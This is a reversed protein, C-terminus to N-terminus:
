DLWEARGARFNSKIMQIMSGIRRKSDAERREDKKFETIATIFNDFDITEKCKKSNNLHAKIRKFLKLCSICVTGLHSTEVATEVGFNHFTFCQLNGVMNEPLENKSQTDRNIPNPLLGLDQSPFDLFDSATQDQMEEESQSAKQVQEENSIMLKGMELEAKMVKRIGIMSKTDFDFNKKLVLYKVFTALFVGCDWSNNQAPIEPPVKVRLTLPKVQKNKSAFLPKIYMKELQSLSRIHTKKNKELLKKKEEPSSQPYNFPDIAVLETGTFLILFWHNDKHVPIYLERFDLLEYKRYYDKVRRFGGERFATHFFSTFIFVEADLAGILKFYENIIEDSLWNNSDLCSLVQKGSEQEQHIEKKILKSDEKHKEKLEESILDKPLHSPSQCLNILDELKYFDQCTFSRMLHNSLNKYQKKCGMCKNSAKTSKANEKNNSITELKSNDEKKMVDKNLQNGIDVKEKESVFIRKDLAERSVVKESRSRKVDENWIKHEKKNDPEEIIKAYKRGTHIDLQIHLGPPVPQDEFVEEWYNTAVFPTPTSYKRYVYIYNNGTIEDRLNTKTISTDDAKMWNTGMKILAQYHGNNIFPGLHNGISVLKFKDKNPLVLINEPTVKSEIKPGQFDDFRLLQIYLLTPTSILFKQSSAERLKCKGTQPCNSTHECCDSCKMLFSKTSESFHNSVINNLSIVRNTYPVDIKMVRFNEEETRSIHGMNCCGDPTNLFIRRTQERGTFRNLLRSPVGGLRGLEDDISGLLLTHFEELDQQVGNCIDERGYLNGVTRRLDAATTNFRGATCFIRSLEDCLPLKESCNEKYKKLAFFDKVDPTSYLLQLETNVFCLNKESEFGTNNVLKLPAM